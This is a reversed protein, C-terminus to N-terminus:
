PPQPLVFHVLAVPPQHLTVPASVPVVASSGHSQCIACLVCDHSDGTPQSPQQGQQADAHCIPVDALPDLSTALASWPMTAVVVVQCWAAVWSLAFAVVSKM